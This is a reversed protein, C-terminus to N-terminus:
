TQHFGDRPWVKYFSLPDASDNRRFSHRSFTVSDMIEAVRRNKRSKDIRVHVDVIRAARLPLSELGRGSGRPCASVREQDIHWPVAKRRRRCNRRKFRFTRRRAASAAHIPRRPASNDVIILAVDFSEGGGSHRPELAEQDMRTDVTEGHHRLLLQSRSQRMHHPCSQRKQHM